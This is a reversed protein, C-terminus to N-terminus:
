STSNLMRKNHSLFVLADVLSPELSSRKKTVINGATSFVNESSVSTPQMYLISQAIKALIPFRVGNLGWWQLVDFGKFDPFDVIQNLYGDIEKEVSNQRSHLQNGDEFLEEFFSFTASSSAAEEAAATSESRTGREKRAIKLMLSRANVPYLRSNVFKLFRVDLITALLLDENFKGFRANLEVLSDTKMKKLVPPDNTTDACKKRISTVAPVVLSICPYYRGSLLETATKFNELFGVFLKSTEVEADTLILEFEGDELLLKRIVTVNDLVSSMMMHLTNWRTKVSQKLTTTGIGAQDDNEEDDSDMDDDPSLSQFRERLERQAEEFKDMKYKFHKVIAKHKEILNALGHEPPSKKVIAIVVLNLCHDACRIGKWGLKRVAALVNKGNDTTISGPNDVNWSQVIDLIASQINDASKRLKINKTSLVYSHLKWNLIFHVTLTIYSRKRNKDFWLDSTFAFPGSSAKIFTEVNGKVEQYLKPIHYRSFSSATPVVLEPVLQRMLDKFGQGEVTSIPRMDLAIFKTIARLTKDKETANMKPRKTVFADLAGAANKAAETIHHSHQLHYRLTSTSGSM